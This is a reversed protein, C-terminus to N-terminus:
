ETIQYHYTGRLIPRGDKHIEAVADIRDAGGEGTLWDEGRGGTLVNADEDGVLRDNYSTGIVREMAHVLGAADTWFFGLRCINLDALVGYPLNSLDLTHQVTAV